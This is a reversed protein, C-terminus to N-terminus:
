SRPGTSWSMIQSLESISYGTEARWRDTAEQLKQWDAKSTPLKDIVGTSTLALILDQSFLFTDVGMRRLFIQGTLGGGRNSRRRFEKLNDAYDEPQWKSFYNGVSGHDLILDHFFLANEPVSRIKPFHRIITKDQMMAEFFEDPWMTIVSIDFGCFVEEFRPWKNAVVKWNFGSQFVCQSLVSLWRDDPIKALKAAPLPKSIHALKLKFDPHKAEAQELYHSFSLM